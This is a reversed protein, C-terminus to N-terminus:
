GGNYHLPKWQHEHKTILLDSAYGKQNAIFTPQLTKQAKGTTSAM